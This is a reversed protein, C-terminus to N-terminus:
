HLLFQLEKKKTDVPALQAPDGMYVVKIGDKNKYNEIFKYLQDTIMSSEDIILYDGYTVKPRFKLKSEIKEISIQGSTLDVDPALGFLSHLTIVDAKPNNLKTVANARHTPSSYKPEIGKKKLYKDFLGM